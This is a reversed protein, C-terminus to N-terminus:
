MTARRAARAFILSLPIQVMTLAVAWSLTAAAVSAVRDASSGSAYIAFAGIAFADRTGLAQPTLPLAVLVMLPPVLALADSLPIKVDFFSFSLWTGLFLVVIHPVRWVAAVLHGRLGAEALPATLRARTFWRPRLGLVIVYGAALVGAVMMTPPLWSFRGPALVLSLGGLAVVCGFTTAYILLTAGTVRLWPAKCARAIAYTLWAQGVNHNLLGPLYSAGRLVVLRRLSIPGVLARYVARSGVCDAILLAVTFAATFGLFAALHTRALSARFADLDLRWAVFGILAAALGLPLLRRWGPPAPAALPDSSPPQTM